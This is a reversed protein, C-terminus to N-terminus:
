KYYIRLSFPSDKVFDQFFALIKEPTSSLPQKAHAKRAMSTFAHQLPVQILANTFLYPNLSYLESILNSPPSESPSLQATRGCLLPHNSPQEENLLLSERFSNTRLNRLSKLLLLVPRFHCSSGSSSECTAEYVESAGAMFTYPRETSDASRVGFCIHSRRCHASATGIKSTRSAFLCPGRPRLGKV